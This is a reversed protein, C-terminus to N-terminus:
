GTPANNTNKAAPKSAAKSTAASGATAATEIENNLQQMDKNMQGEIEQVLSKDM